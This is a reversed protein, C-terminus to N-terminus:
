LVARTADTIVSDIFVMLRTVVFWIDALLLYQTIEIFLALTFLMTAAAETDVIHLEM